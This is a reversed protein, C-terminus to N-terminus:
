VITVWVWGNSYQFVTAYFNQRILLDNLNCNTWASIISQATMTEPKGLYYFSKNLEINEKINDFDSEPNYEDEKSLTEDIIYNPFREQLIQSIENSLIPDYWCKITKSDITEPEPAISNTSTETVNKEETDSHLDTHDRSTSEAVAAASEDLAQEATATELMSNIREEVRSDIKNGVAHSVGYWIGATGGGIVTIGAVATVVIQWPKFNLKM